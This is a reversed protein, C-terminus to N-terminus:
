PFGRNIELKRWRPMADYAETVSDFPSPVLIARVIPPEGFGYYEMGEVKSEYTIEWAEKRVLRLAVAWMKEGVASRQDDKAIAVQVVLNMACLVYCTKESPTELINVIVGVVETYPHIGMIVTCTILTEIERHMMTFHRKEPGMHVVFGHGAQAVIALSPLTQFYGAKESSYRMITWKEIDSLDKGDALHVYRVGRKAAFAAMYFGVEERFTCIFAGTM